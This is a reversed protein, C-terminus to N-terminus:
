HRQTLKLRSRQLDTLYLLLFPTWDFKITLSALPEVHADKGRCVSMNLLLVLHVCMDQQNIVTQM